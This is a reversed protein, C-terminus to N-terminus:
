SRKKGKKELAEVRAQLGQCVGWLVCCMRNYDLTVLEGLEKDVLKGCLAQGVPGTELVENAIFGLTRKQSGETRRYWKPAVADFLQQLEELGAPEVSHKLKEDSLNQFGYNVIVEGDNAGGTNSEVILNAPGTAATRLFIAQDQAYLQVGGASSASLEGSGANCAMLLRANGATALNLVEATVDGSNVTAVVRLDGQAQVGTSGGILDLYAPSSVIGNDARIASATYLVSNLYTGQTGGTLTLYDDTPRARVTPARLETSLEVSGSTLTGQVDLAGNVVTGGSGGTITLETDQVRTSIANTVLGTATGTADDIYLETDVRLRPAISHVEATVFTCLSQDAQDTVRVSVTGAKLNLFQNTPLLPEVTDAQISGATAIGLSSDAFIRGMTLMNVGTKLSFQSSSLDAVAAGNSAEFEIGLNGGRLTLFDAGNARVDNVLLPDSPPAGALAYRADSEAKSYCDCTLQVTASNGLILNAGLPAQPLLARIMRPTFNDLVMPIIGGGGANGNVVHYRSDLPTFDSNSFYRGDSESKSYCDCTLQVTASNGLILNAGLPAQPLLARIMRPTFNDLVMPIIGGGGANGNVPHYRADGQAETLLGSSSIQSAIEASTEGQDWYNTLESAISSDIDAQTAYQSVNLADVASSIQANVEAQTYTQSQDYAQCEIQLTNGSNQLSAVLPGAFHLNRLAQGTLLEWTTNGSWAPANSVAAGTILADVQASDYYSALAIAIENLIPAQLGTWPVYASLDIGGVAAAIAADMQLTTSYPVLAASIAGNTESSTYYSGLTALVWSESALPALLANVEAQTYADCALSLTFNDNELSVSLPDNFHWNRITNTGVLLDWTTQGPWAQANALNTGGGTTLAALAANLADIASQLSTESASLEAATAYPGAGQLALIETDHGDLRADRVALLSGLGATDTYGALATALAAAVDAASQFGAAQLVALAAESADLRGDQIALAADLAAQQVFPLLATAILQSVDAPTTRLAVTSSLDTTTPRDLLATAIKQDVDAATQRAAVDLALQDQTSKLGYTAAVQALVANDASTIASNMSANTPHNALKLDVSAPTSKSNVDLQLADLASQNAKGALGTTLSTSLTTISSANGAILGEAAALDAALAYPTLDPPAPIAAVQVQLAAVASSNTGISATNAATDTLPTYATLVTALQGASIGQMEITTIPTQGDNLINGTITSEFLSM